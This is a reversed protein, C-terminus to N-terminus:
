KGLSINTIDFIAVENRKVITSNCIKMIIITINFIEREIQINSPKNIRMNNKINLKPIDKKKAV